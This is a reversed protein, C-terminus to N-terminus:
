KERRTMSSASRLSAGVLREAEAYIDGDAALWHIRRDDRRFWTSQMRALRHTETKMKETAEALSLDGALHQCVQRYGIGSLPPLAPGYGGALLGRVEDV